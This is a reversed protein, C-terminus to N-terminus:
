RQIVHRESGQRRVTLLHPLGRQVTPGAVSNWHSAGEPADSLKDTLHPYHADGGQVFEPWLPLETLVRVM